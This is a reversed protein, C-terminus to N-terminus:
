KNTPQLTIIPIGTAFDDHAGTIRIRLLKGPIAKIDNPILVKIYNSTTGWYGSKGITEVIIEHALGVNSEFFATRKKLSLMRANYAREKKQSETVQPRLGAAVTGPRVSYPFVHLYTFPKSQLYSMINNYHLKEETPFGVIIDTGLSMNSFQHVIKDFIRSYEKVTYSRNMKALITDDASQIPIHLHRCIRDHHLVSLLHDSFENIEISSLRIRIRSTAKLIEELLKALDYESTLDKGYIGLHIGSLVLEEFGSSEYMRATNLIEKPAISRSRGRAAPIVCYSCANNCGDQVKITPRQRAININNLTHSSSARPIMNVIHSKAGNGIVKIGPNTESLLQKNLEAYCGTVIVESKAKIARSILQRSQYDAKATVSCSNVICIDAGESLDVIQHGSNSLVHGIHDSEARNTRCGLTM